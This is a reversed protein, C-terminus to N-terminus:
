SKTKYHHIHYLGKILYFTSEYLLITTIRFIIDAPLVFLYIMVGVGQLFGTVVRIDNNGKRLGLKVTSWDVIAPIVFLWAIIFVIIFNETHFLGLWFPSSLIFGILLGTWLGFCRACPRIEYSFINLKIYHRPNHQIFDLVSEKFSKGKKGDKAM